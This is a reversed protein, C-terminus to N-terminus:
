VGDSSGEVAVRALYGRVRGHGDTLKPLCVHRLSCDRCRGDFRARPVSRTRVMRHYERAADLTRRRLEDTFQVVVRLRARIYYLAGCPVPVGRAEELAMAQACLQVCDAEFSRRRARKSEVPFLRTTNGERFLEIRDAKGVLGLRTSCLMVASEVEVYERAKRHPTDAPAHLLRGEVTLHSEVFVGEVHILACQRTCFVLHQLGSLPLYDAEDIPIDREVSPSV